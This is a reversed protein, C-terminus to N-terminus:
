LVPTWVSAPTCHALPNSVSRFGVRRIFGGKAARSIVSGWARLSPPAPVIGSSAQRLDEAMFESVGTIYDRLFDFAQDSWSPAVDNAHTVAREMGADRLEMGTFHGTIVPQQEEFLSLQRNV